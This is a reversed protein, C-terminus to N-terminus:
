KSTGEGLLEKLKKHLGEGRLNKAVIKGNPDVLYNQPIGRVGYQAAVANKWGQLDSVQTWNLGDTKIAELWLDKKGPQDLSIGLITFNKDKFKNFAEVVNPNEARCPGCWSAWFDILVYKGKFDALSVPKDNVDNQTFMPAMAGVSTARAAEIQKAFEVGATSSRLEASLGKYIPEVKAVDMSSGAIEKLATLSFFSGPYQKIYKSQLAEKEESAKEYRANLEKKFNEDKKKEDPAAAYDSNVAAMAKVPGALLNKYVSNETNIKSDKIVANKISDTANVTIVGNDLYFSLVDGKRGINKLGVGKYDAILQATVPSKVAGTFQFGGNTVVTSDLVTNGDVRYSLYMKAPKAAFKAKLTFTSNQAFGIAPAVMLAMLTLRKM